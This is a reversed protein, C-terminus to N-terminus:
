RTPRVSYGCPCTDAAASAQAAGDATVAYGVGVPSPGDCRKCVYGHGTDDSWGTAATWIVKGSFRPAKSM